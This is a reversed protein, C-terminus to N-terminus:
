EKHGCCGFRPATYHEGFKPATFGREKTDEREPEAYLEQVRATRIDLIWKDEESLLEKVKEELGLERAAKVAEVLIPRVPKQSVIQLMRESVEKHRTAIKQLAHVAMTNVLMEEDSARQCGEEDDPEPLKAMASRVLLDAATQDGADGLVYLLNWRLMPDSTKSQRLLGTVTEHLDGSCRNLLEIVRQYSLEGEKDSTNLYRVAQGVLWATASKDFPRKGPNITFTDGDGRTKQEECSM